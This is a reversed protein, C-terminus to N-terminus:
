YWDTYWIAADDTTEQDDHLAMEENFDEESWGLGELACEKSCFHEGETQYGDAHVINCHDCVVLLEGDEIDFDEDIEKYDEIKFLERGNEVIDFFDEDKEIQCFVSLRFIGKEEEATYNRGVELHDTGVDIKESTSFIVPTWERKLEKSTIRAVFTSM